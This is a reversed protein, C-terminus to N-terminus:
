MDHIRHAAETIRDVNPLWWHELKSAPYPTDFGTVRTVPAELFYFSKETIRAAIEAGLGGSLSAEHIV